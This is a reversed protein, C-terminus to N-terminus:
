TALWEDIYRADDADLGYAACVASDIERLVAQFGGRLTEKEQDTEANEVAQGIERARAM